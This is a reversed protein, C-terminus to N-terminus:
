MLLSTTGSIHSTANSCSSPSTVTRDTASRCVCLAEIVMAVARNVGGVPDTPSPRWGVVTPSVNLEELRNITNKADLLKNTLDVIEQEMTKKDREVKRLQVFFFCSMLTVPSLADTAGTSLLRLKM